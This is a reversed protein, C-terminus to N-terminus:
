CDAFAFLWSCPLLLWRLLVLVRSLLLQTVGCKIEVPESLDRSFNLLPCEGGFGCDGVVGKQVRM